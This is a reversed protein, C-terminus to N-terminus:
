REAEKEKRKERKEREKSKKVLKVTEMMALMTGTLMFVFAPITLNSYPYVVESGSYEYTISSNITSISPPSTMHLVISSTGNLTYLHSKRVVTVMVTGNGRLTLTSNVVVSSDDPPSLIKTGNTLTGNVTFTKEYSKLAVIALIMSLFLLILGLKIPRRSLAERFTVM